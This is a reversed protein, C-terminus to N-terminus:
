FIEYMATLTRYWPNSVIAEPDFGAQHKNKYYLKVPVCGNM